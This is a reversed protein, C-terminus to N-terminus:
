RSGSSGPTGPRPRRARARAADGRPLGPRPDPLGVGFTSPTDLGLPMATVDARGTRRALRFAMATFILDGVMVGVATGPIMRTLVFEAPMGFVGVLLGAMLIMDGINDLMLGFFANVDGRRAWAYAPRDLPRERAHPCAHDPSGETLDTTSGAAPVSESRSTLRPAALALLGLAGRLDRCLSPRAILGCGWASGTRRWASSSRPSAAAPWGVTNMLGAATGRLEPAVVDYLSAFINADYIGKCLGVGVLAASSRGRGDGVPGTLLVCRRRRRDPRPGPRADAGRSTPGGPRGALGGALAGSSAGGAVFLTATAVVQMLGMAFREHVFSPLWTLFAMAVFNAGAFAVVPAVRRRADRRDSRPEASGPEAARGPLRRRRGRGGEAQERPPEVILRRAPPRMASGSSGSCGSRRGGARRARRSAPSSDRRRGDGVYVSTQHLSMARSRTRPGHYDALLSMSAPFYFSEGLGEAARFVLLQRVIQGPGDGRLDPELVGARGRDPAAALGSRGRVGRAAGVARLRDHVVVRADRAADEVARVRRELLPFVASVAQRDAYNFFGCFWLLGVVVWPSRPDLLGRPQNTAVAVRRWRGERLTAIPCGARRRGTACRPEAPRSRTPPALGTPM